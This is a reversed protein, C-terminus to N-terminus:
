FLEGIKKANKIADTTNKIADTGAAKSANIGSKVSNINSVEDVSLGLDNYMASYDFKGYNPDLPDDVLGLDDYTQQLEDSKATLAPIYSPDVAACGSDLCQLLKDSLALLGAINDGGPFNAGDLLKDVLSGLGGASFEPFTLDLGNVLNGITDFVGGVIGMIVSVPNLSQLYECNDIFNKLNELDGLQSGPLSENVSNRFGNLAAALANQDSWSMGNLKSKMENTANNIASKASKGPQILSDFDSVLKNCLSRENNTIAM